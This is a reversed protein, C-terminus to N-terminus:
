ALAVKTRMAALPRRGPRHWPPGFSLCHYWHSRSQRAQSYIYNNTYIIIYNYIYIVIHMNHCHNPGKYVIYICMCKLSVVPIPWTRSVNSRDCGWRQGAGVDTPQGHIKRPHTQLVHTAFKLAMFMVVWLHGETSLSNNYRNLIMNGKMTSYAM